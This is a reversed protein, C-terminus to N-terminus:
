RRARAAAVAGWIALGIAWALPAGFFAAVLAKAELGDPSPCPVMPYALFCAQQGDNIRVIAWLALAGGALCCLASWTM